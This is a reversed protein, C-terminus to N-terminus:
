SQFKVSGFQCLIYVLKVNYPQTVGAINSQGCNIWFVGVLAAGIVTVCANMKLIGRVKLKFRKTLLGGAIQGFFTAPVAVFGTFYIFYLIQSANVTENRLNLFHKPKDVTKAAM